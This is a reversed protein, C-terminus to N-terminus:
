EGVRERGRGGETRPGVRGGEGRRERERVREREGGERREREREERGGERGGREREWSECQSSQQVTIALSVGGGGDAVPLWPLLYLLYGHCGTYLYGHCSTYCTVMTVPISNVQCGTYGTYELHPWLTFSAM